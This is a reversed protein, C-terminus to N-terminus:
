RVLAQFIMNEEKGYPFGAARWADAVSCEKPSYLRNSKLSTNSHSSSEFKSDLETASGPGSMSNFSDSSSSSSGSASHCLHTKFSPHSISMPIIDILLGLASSPLPQGLIDVGHKDNLRTVSVWLSARATNNNSNNLIKGGGIKDSKGSNTEQNSHLEGFINLIARELTRDNNRM